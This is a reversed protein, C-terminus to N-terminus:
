AARELDANGRQVQDSARGWAFGETRKPPRRTIPRSM